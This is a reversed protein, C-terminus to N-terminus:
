YGQCFIVPKEERSPSVHSIVAGIGYTSAEAVLQILCAPDYHALMHSTTLLEKDEKFAFDCEPSWKWKCNAQLLENLTHLILAINPLFTRYYNLLGLFAHLETTNLVPAGKM